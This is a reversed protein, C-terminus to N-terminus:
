FVFQDFCVSEDILSTKETGIIDSYYIINMIDSKTHINQIVKSLSDCFSKMNSINDWEVM